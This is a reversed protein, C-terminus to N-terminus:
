SRPTLGPPAWTLDLRTRPDGVWSREAFESAVDSADARALLGEFFGQTQLSAAEEAPMGMHYRIVIQAEDEHLFLVELAEFDFYTARLVRFRNLTEVADGPAVLEPNEECLPPASHRGWMRALTVDGGAIGELVANGLREFAAMPYWASPDIPERLYVLDEAPLHVDWDVVKFARLMRVYDLFLVGKVQRMSALMGWGPAPRAQADDKGSALGDRVVAIPM